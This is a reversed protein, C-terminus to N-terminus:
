EGIGIGESRLFSKITELDPETADDPTRFRHQLNPPSDIEKLLGHAKGILYTIANLNPIAVRTDDHFRLFWQATETARANCAHLEHMVYEM